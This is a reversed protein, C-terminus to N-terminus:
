NRPSDFRRGTQAGGFGFGTSIKMGDCYWWEGDEEMVTHPARDRYKADIRSVWLDPPEMVHNDSSIIRYDAM